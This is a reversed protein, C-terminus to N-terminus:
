LRALEKSKMESFDGWSQDTRLMQSQPRKMLTLPKTDNRQCWEKSANLLHLWSTLYRADEKDHESIISAYKAAYHSATKGNKDVAEPNAGYRILLSIISLKGAKAAFHLPTAGLTDASQVNAGKQILMSVVIGSSFSNVAYHLPTAGIRDRAECDADRLLLLETLQPFGSKSAIHLPTCLDHDRAEIDAGADLLDKMPEPFWYRASYHLPVAGTSDPIDLDAGKDLLEKVAHFGGCYGASLLSILPTKSNAKMNLNAGLDILLRVTHRIELQTQEDEDDKAVFYRKKGIVHLLSEGENNIINVHKVLKGYAPSIQCIERGFVKATTSWQSGSRSLDDVGSVVKLLFELAPFNCVSAAYHLPTDGNSDRGLPDQGHDTLYRIIDPKRHAGGSAIHLTTAGHIDQPEVQLGERLSLERVLDISGISAAVHLTTLGKDSVITTDVGHELLLRMIGESEEALLSERLMLYHLVSRGNPDLHNIYARHRSSQPRGSASSQEDFHTSCELSRDLLAKVIQYGSYCAAIQLTSSQRESEVLLYDTRQTIHSWDNAGRQILFHSAEEWNARLAEFLGELKWDFGLSSFIHHNERQLIEISDFMQKFINFSYGQRHELGIAFVRDWATHHFGVEFRSLPNAGHELLLSVLEEKKEWIASYLAPVHNTTEDPHFLRKELLWKVVDFKGHKTAAYLNTALHKSASARWPIREDDGLSQLVSLLGHMCILYLGEGDLSDCKRRHYFPIDLLHKPLIYREMFEEILHHWENLKATPKYQHDFLFWRMKHALDCELKTLSSMEAHEFLYITYDRLIEIPEGISVNNERWLSPSFNDLLRSTAITHIQQASFEQLEELFERVSLHAMQFTEQESAHSISTVILLNRCIGLLLPVDLDKHYFGDDDLAVAAIMEEVTLTRQAALIWSFTRCAISSTAHASDLIDDYIIRYQEKLKAPLKGLESRVDKELAM